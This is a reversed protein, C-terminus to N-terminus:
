KPALRYLILGLVAFIINPIWVAVISPFGVNEAAVSTVKMAFIYIFALLLGVAINVGIGGRSKRSSVSLGILTLVYTAFPFSTRQYFEIEYYAIDSSGKERELKIFNKLETYGMTQVVTSRQAMESLKFPLITDLYDGSNEPYILKDNPNGIYRIHYDHLRWVDTSDPNFVQNAKLISVLEDKENRNEMVFGLARSKDSRYSDFYVVKKGPFEAFYDLVTRVNRYYDEEFQLRVKNSEPLVIHNLGLSILMLITAGIMYPRLIRRFPRGSNLMPIIESNQAMKATFWIVAVFVILPSFLNGFYIIFNFYYDFLIASLPADKEIFEGVREAIDFVMALIMIVGLMFFFTVLYKKIIYRDLIKLM